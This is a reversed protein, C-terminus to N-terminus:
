HGHRSREFKTLTGEVVPVSLSCGKGLGREAIVQDEEWTNHYCALVRRTTGSADRMRIPMGSVRREYVGCWSADPTGLLQVGNKTVVAKLHECVLQQGEHQMVCCLGCRNCTGQLELRLGPMM